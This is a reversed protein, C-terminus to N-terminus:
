PEMRGRMVGEVVVGVQVQWSDQRRGRQHAVNEAAVYDVIARGGIWWRPRWDMRLGFRHSKEVVGTPFPESYHRYDAVEMWPATFPKEIRDEGKVRYEYCLRLCYPESPWYQAGVIMREFDNGLYHGVPLGRHLWKEWDGGQSNYTRQTIRTYESFIDLGHLRLPDAWRWGLILGYEDPEFDGPENKEIQVDDVLLDAYLTLNSRPMWVAQVSGLINGAHPGNMQEGHFFIFPNMYAWHVGSTSGYLVAEGIAFYFRPWPRIQLRHVALYRNVQLRTGGRQEWDMDLQAGMILYQWRSGSVSLRVQDLPRSYDSIFLAADFGPGLRLYDRGIHLSWGRHGLQVYGTEQYAAVDSQRIGRYQPDEDLRNDMIVEAAALLWPRLRLAGGLRNISHFINRSDSVELGQMVEVGINMEGTTHPAKQLRKQLYSIRVQPAGGVASTDDVATKVLSWVDASEYPQTLPSLSWWQGRAQFFRVYDAMWHTPRISQAFCTLMPLFIFIILRRMNACYRISLKLPFQNAFITTYSATLLLLSEGKTQYLRKDLKIM